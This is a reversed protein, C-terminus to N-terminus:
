AGGGPMARGRRLNGRESPRPKRNASSETNGLRNSVVEYDGERGQM